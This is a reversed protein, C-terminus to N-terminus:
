SAEEQAPTNLLTNIINRQIMTQQIVKLLLKQTQEQSLGCVYAEYLKLKFQQELPLETPPM